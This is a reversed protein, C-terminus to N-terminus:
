KDSQVHIIHLSCPLLWDFQPIGPNNHSLSFCLVCRNNYWLTEHKHLKWQCFSQLILVRMLFLSISINSICIYWNSSIRDKDYYESTNKCFDIDTELSIFKKTRQICCINYQCQILIIQPYFYYGSVCTFLWPLLTLFLFFVKLHKFHGTWSLVLGHLFKVTDQRPFFPYQDCSNNFHTCFDLAWHQHQLLM